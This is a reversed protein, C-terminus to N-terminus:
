IPLVIDLEEDDDDYVEAFHEKAWIEARHGVGVIVVDRTIDAKEIFRTPLVFRSQADLECNECNLFVSRQLKTRDVGDNSFLLENTTKEWEDPRYIRLFNEKPRRFIIFEKGGIMDRIKPPMVIRKKSDLTRDYYGNFQM